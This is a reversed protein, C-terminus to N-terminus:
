CSLSCSKCIMQLRLLAKFCNGTLMVNKLHYKFSGDATKLDLIHFCSNKCKKLFIFETALMNPKNYLRM